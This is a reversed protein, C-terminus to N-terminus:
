KTHDEIEEFARVSLREGLKTMESMQSPKSTGWFAKWSELNEWKAITIVESPDDISQIMFSGLAGDVTEHIHNTTKRWTNQFAKFNHDNVRWRYEVRIM